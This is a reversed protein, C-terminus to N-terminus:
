GEEEVPIWVTVFDIGLATMETMDFTCREVLVNNQEHLDLQVNYFQVNKAELTAGAPVVVRGRPIDGPLILQGVWLRVRRIARRM